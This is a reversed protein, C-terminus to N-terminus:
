CTTISSHLNKSYGLTAFPFTVPLPLLFHTFYITKSHKDHWWEELTHRAPACLAASHISSLNFRKQWETSDLARSFHTNSLRGIATHVHPGCLSQNREDSVTMVPFQHKFYKYWSQLQSLKALASLKHVTYLSAHYKGLTCCLTPQLNTLSFFVHGFHLIQFHVYKTEEWM